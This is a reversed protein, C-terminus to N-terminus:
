RKNKNKRVYVEIKSMLKKENVIKIKHNKIEINKVRNFYDNDQYVDITDVYEFNKILLKKYVPNSIFRELNLFCMNDQRIYEMFIIKYKENTLDSMNQNNFYNETFLIELDFEQVSSKLSYLDKLDIYQSTPAYSLSDKGIYSYLPYKLVNDSFFMIQDEKKPSYKKIYYHMKDSFNFPSSLKSDDRFIMSLVLFMNFIIVFFIAFILTFTIRSFYRSHYNFKREYIYCILTIFFIHFISIFNQYFKVIVFFISTLFLYLIFFKSFELSSIKKSRYYYILAFLVIIWSSWIVSFPDFFIIQIAKLEFISIAILGFFIFKNNVINLLKHFSKDYFIFLIFYNIVLYLNALQDLSLLGESFIMAITSILVATIFKIEYPVRNIRSIYLFFLSLIPLSITFLISIRSIFYELSSYPRYVMKWMPVMFQFYEKTFFIMLNLISLGIIMMILYDFRYIIRWNRNQLFKFFEIGLIVILYNPKFSPILAMCVGRFFLDKKSLQDKFELSYIFYPFFLLMFFSTKTGMENHSISPCRLFFSIFFVLFFLNSFIKNSALVTKKFIRQSCFFCIFFLLYIFIQSLIVSNIGSFESIRYQLAYIYFNLPFNSEFIQDFYKGGLAFKKGLDIYISTDPGIDTISTIFINFLFVGGCSLLLFLKSAFFDSNPLFNNKYFFRM